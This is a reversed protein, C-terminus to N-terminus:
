LVASDVPIKGIDTRQEITNDVSHGEIYIRALGREIDNSIDLVIRALVTGPTIEIRIDLLIYGNVTFKSCIGGCSKGPFVGTRAGRSSRSSKLIWIRDATISYFLENNCLFPIVLDVFAILRLYSQLYRTVALLDILNRKAFGYIRIIRVAFAVPVVRHVDGNTDHPGLFISSVLDKSRAVVKSEHLLGALGSYGEIPLEVNRGNTRHHDITRQYHENLDVVIM